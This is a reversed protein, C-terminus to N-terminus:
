RRRFFRAMEPARIMMVTPRGHPCTFPLRAERLNGLLRSMEERSLPHDAKVAAQCSMMKVAEEFLAPAERDEAAAALLEQIEAKDPCDRFFLPVTRLIFSNNGFTEFTLGARALFSLSKELAQASIEDLEFIQPVIEQIPLKGAEEVMMEYLIREHAAHQDVIYLDGGACQALIFGGAARGLIELPPLGRAPAPQCAPEPLAAGPLPNNDTYFALAENVAPEAIRGPLERAFPAVAPECAPSLSDLAQRVGALVSRYVDRERSFRVERKAPHVNVDVEATDIDVFLVAVPFSRRPLLAQYATQLADSLLPSRVYRNNIFFSQMSRNARALSPHSIYGSLSLLPGRRNVPLLLRANQRGYVQYVVDQLRGNGATSLKLRGNATLAFSVDPRSLALRQLTDAIGATEAGESKIFKLRAPTNYFLEEVRVETGAPCGYESVSVLRGGEAVALTGALDFAQRTALRLRSVAAISPLAEGRFGLTLVSSIDAASSIKSTAHRRLALPVDEPALGCGDDYVRILELGGRSVEVDIRTAGADLSNEVLEKVVSAPREVVEGAAIQNATNEDLLIINGM